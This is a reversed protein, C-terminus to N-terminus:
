TQNNINQILKAAEEARDKPVQIEVPGTIPSFGTGMRGLAFLDQVGQSRAFCPIGAEEMMSKILGILGEDGTTFVTALERYVLEDEPPLVEVLNTQCQECFTIGAKFESRCKPCFM